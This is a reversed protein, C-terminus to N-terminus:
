NRVTHILGYDKRDEIEVVWIDPDERRLRVIRENIHEIPQAEGHPLVFRREGQDDYASGPAPELLHGTGDLRNITVYVAGADEAGKHLVAGYLGAAECRRLYAQVWFQAKLRL